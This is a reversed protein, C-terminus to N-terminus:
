GARWSVDFKGKKTMRFIKPLPWPPTYSELREVARPSLVLMGHAGEGGLVKQWSYTVVDCKAFDVPQSFVASTADCLTLGTRDAAIWDANPVMVGSTTGNWTFLVDSDKSVGSLDPLRGYPATLETVDKLKLQKTLDTHWGAGFSEFHVSTVPKPGLLSWMAMEYAGTDSAPVIGVHYDAPLGLVDRTMDLVSALKAKGLKSRHSRGVAADALAAVSWGPRKKTPGSGFAASSPRVSPKPPGSVHLGAASMEDTMSSSGSGGGSGGAGAGAAALPPVSVARVNEVNPLGRIAALTEESIAQDVTLVGLAKGGVAHRGLGFHAINVGAKALAGTIRNLVGPKDVNNFFLMEGSPTIDVKFGDIAVIRADRGDFVSAALTRVEGAANEFAVTVLNTYAGSKPSVAEVTEIGLERALAPASVYNVGGAEGQTVALLGKLMATKLAAAVAADAVLPGALSLRIRALKGALLQAQLCGLREAIGVYAALDPRSLLALNAGANVVGVFAKGDLADAMQAAIDRAVNVQAETTSAGLHPTCIVAPHALLPKAAEPPPEASFVDLAAGAVKGSNLAELLDGEHVIGGRAVNVIKVGTKCKALTAACILNTTEPTKPAHLTIIDARAWLDDLSVPTIGAATAVDPAMVPDYGITVMGFAQCWRAVERGIRGLGVIGITKGSLESGM